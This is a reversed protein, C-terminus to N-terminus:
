VAPDITFASALDALLATRQATLYLHGGPFLQTRSAASTVGAWRALLSPRPHQDDAGGYTSINCRVRATANACYQESALVDARLLPLMLALLEADERVASPIAGFRTDLAQVFGADDLASVGAVDDADAPARRSSVFLHAPPRPADEELRRTVEFAIAAGMSHGFCAYPLDLETRMARAAADAMADISTLPQERMRSERGPLQVGVVEIDDPLARPWQAYLSVGGGAYPFCFLRRRPAPRPAGFRLLTVVAPSVSM